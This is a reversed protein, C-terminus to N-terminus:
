KSMLKDKLKKFKNKPTKDTYEKGVSQPVNVKKAFEANNAVAQMFKLQDKSKALM